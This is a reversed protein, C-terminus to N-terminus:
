ASGLRWLSYRSLFVPLITERFFVPRSLIYTPGLFKSLMLSWVFVPSECGDVYMFLCIMERETVAFCKLVERAIEFKNSGEAGTTGQYHHKWFLGRKNFSSSSQDATRIRAMGYKEVNILALDFLPQGIGIAAKYL